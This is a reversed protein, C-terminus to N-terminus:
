RIRFRYGVGSETVITRPRAPDDELKQRLRGIFIRLYNTDGVHAPGWVERLLMQHTVVMDANQALVRLVEYERPSLKVPEDHRRVERRVLDVSVAGSVVAPHGGETRIRHRLAARMRALLEAMEFPKTVYDNAGADLATIKDTVANRSSLIIIPTQSWGRLERVVAVGDLDPLTLDLIILDPNNTVIAALGARATEAETVLYDHAGLGTRLFRRMQPDDEVVIIRHGESM